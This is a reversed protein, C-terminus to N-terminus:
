KVLRFNMFWALQFIDSGPTNVSNREADTLVPILMHDGPQWNAPAVLNKNSDVTQLAIVSRKIEDMNRGIEMPYFNISRIKNNPDIIFVARINEAINVSPHIMGYKRSIAYDSDDILPFKIKLPSRDKYKIEELASIWDNHQSLLDTSLVLIKVGLKEYDTQQQALELLESSCVPTFDKPHSFIIKWSNGYDKPFNINGLTTKAKFSPAEDGILPIQNKQANLQIVAVILLAAILFNKKM